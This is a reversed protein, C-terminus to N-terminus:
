TSDLCNYMVIYLSRFYMLVPLRGEIVHSSTMGIVHITYTFNVAGAKNFARCTYLGADNSTVSNLNLSLREDDDDTYFEDANYLQLDAASRTRSGTVGDVQGGSRRRRRSHRRSYPHRVRRSSSSTGVGTFPYDYYYHDVSSPSSSTSAPGSASLMKDDKFWQVQVRPRGVADCRLRVSDGAMLSVEASAHMAQLSTFVPAVTLCVCAYSLEKNNIDCGTANQTAYAPSIGGGIRCSIM